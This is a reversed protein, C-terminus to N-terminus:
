RTGLFNALWCGGFLLLLVAVAFIRLQWLARRDHAQEQADHAAIAQACAPCVEWRSGDPEPLYRRWSERGNSFTQWSMRPREITHQLCIPRECRECRQQTPTACLYCTARAGAAVHQQEGM